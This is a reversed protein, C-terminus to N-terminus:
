YPSFSRGDGPHLDGLLNIKFPNVANKFPNVANQRPVSQKKVKLPIVSDMGFFIGRGWM